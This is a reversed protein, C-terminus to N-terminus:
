KSMSYSYKKDFDKTLSVKGDTSVFVADINGTSEITQLAKQVGEIFLTTSYGDCLFSVESIITDSLMDTKVPYGTKTDLIHTYDVGDKVFHREYLGSTVLSRNSVPVVMLYDGDPKNPDKIAINWDSGDPRSGVALVNGGLNILGSTVNHDAYIKALRDAIWGKATGGLDLMMDPDKLTVTNGSVDVQHYDIHKIAEQIAEDSPKIAKEFDWLLSVSGITIDFAGQSLESFELSKSILDATDPDVEVPKGKAHNIKWIDTGEKHASFLNDFRTCEKICADLCEEPGYCSLQVITDFVFISKKKFDSDAHAIASKTDADHQPSATKDDQPKNQQPACGTAGLITTAATLLGAVAVGRLFSRRTSLRGMRMSPTACGAEKLKGLQERSTFFQDPQDMKKHHMYVHTDASPSSPAANMEEFERPSLGIVMDVPQINQLSQM